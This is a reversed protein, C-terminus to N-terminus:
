QIRTIMEAIFDPRNQLIKKVVSQYHRKDKQALKQLAKELEEKIEFSYV